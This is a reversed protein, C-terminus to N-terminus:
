AKGAKLNGPLKSPFNQSALTCNNIASFESINQIGTISKNEILMEM